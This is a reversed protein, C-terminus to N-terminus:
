LNIKYSVGGKDVKLILDSVETVSDPIEFLLVAEQTEGAAIAANYTSFDITMITSYVDASVNEIGNYSYQIGFKTGSTLNDVFIEEETPNFLALSVILYQKGNAASVDFINQQTYNKGLSLGELTVNLGQTGFVESFTSSQETKEGETQTTGDSVSANGNAIDQNEQIEETKEEETTVEEQKINIIGYQQYSNHKSVAHAAYNVIKTEEEETLVYAQTGCGSLLIMGALCLATGKIKKNKMENIGRQRSHHLDQKKPTWNLGFNLVMKM